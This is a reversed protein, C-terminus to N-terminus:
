KIKKEYKKASQGLFKRRATPYKNEIRNKCSTHIKYKDM